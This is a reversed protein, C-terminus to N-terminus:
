GRCHSFLVIVHGKVTFNLLDDIREDLATEGQLMLSQSIGFVAFNGPKRIVEFVTQINPIGDDATYDSVYVCRKTEDASLREMIQRYDLFNETNVLLPYGTMEGDVYASIQEFCEQLSQCQM